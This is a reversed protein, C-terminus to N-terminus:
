ERDTDRKRETGKNREECVRERKGQRQTEVKIKDTQGEKREEIRDGWRYVEKEAM